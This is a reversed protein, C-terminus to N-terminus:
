WSLTSNSSQRNPPYQQPLEPVVMYYRSLTTQMVEVCIIGMEPNLPQVFGSSYYGGGDVDQLNGSMAQGYMEHQFSRAEWVIGLVLLLIVVALVQKILGFGQM